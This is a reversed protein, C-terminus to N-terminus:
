CGVERGGVKSCSPPTGCFLESLLFTESYEVRCTRLFFEPPCCPDSLFYDTKFKHVEFHLNDSMM